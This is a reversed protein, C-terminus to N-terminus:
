LPKARKAVKPRPVTEFYLDVEFPGGDYRDDLEVTFNGQADTTGEALPEGRGELDDEGLIAYTEKASAVARATVNEGAARYLRVTVSALPEDCDDCLFGCLRGKLTYSM